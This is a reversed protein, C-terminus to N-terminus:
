AADKLYGHRVTYGKEEVDSSFAAEACDGAIATWLHSPELGGYWKLNDETSVVPPLVMSWERDHAGLSSLYPRVAPVDRLIRLLNDTARNQFVTGNEWRVVTKRGVGLLNEFERQTMRLEDRIGRIEDPQLLGERLRIARSARALAADMQGPLFFQEGCEQCVACEVEVVISRRGIRVEEDVLTQQIQGGCFGCESM